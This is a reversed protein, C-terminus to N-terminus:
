DSVAEPSLRIVDRLEAVSLETLWDEGAGVISEALAKKREIMEDIREELTGVCIFKRVQVNKTQGIRFARDTAQDEVAPNWWRDVHIVHNAATLTLGTGAAKLSLLFVAPEAETQFRQVLEDRHRKSTGGHLWPVPRDLRSMLYPQLMAGFEAYQTFVLAKEGQELIEACIEELRELKGSRGPLRSGDKLLHAPHNCVQKLKAMTALVLGRRQTGESEAIRALMDEVTAQYLSAQETTLNCFVKIEQKEPLDSIIDKDTKLRRLIFPGTARKLATAAAEDGHAEIPVAYRARFAERPGLLGPNAFEMISWLETLHNEVPTGTLAVRSRAPIGRVARAQRTGSNKLAQAEDCVVRGWEVQALMEADRTATGYTTLVLDAQAAAQVLDDDRHRGTGHHVYVRLKPTFRAAERQWNGVLSMPLVALTPGPDAGARREHVLLSLLTVGKGLGMDDALLAGLGLDNMFALWALGREQYPRLRAEIGDPTAVPTLRRDPAGSLLDGLAGDADVTDLPLAEEGAQLAARMAEDATMTGSRRRRMFELAGALQREDLEVWQGRLRVLPAKLRALEALEEEAIPEGGIALDWRFDVLDGMGFGSAAAAGPKSESRTRTTLKRGLRAKGAWQPLLVGFGAASLLPAAERLFRFAGATDLEAEAPTAHNLAPGIDPFLRLARGLGTLLTEEANAVSRATGAWVAAASIFLSPDDTGQLAFEVRWQDDPEDAAVPPEAPEILRFCVRLPGAPLRAQAAWADLEAALEDPDDGLERVVEANPGTLAAVWREALPIRDPARGRRPPLLPHPVVSRVATDTLGDLAERLVVSARQGGEAARCAAPMAQALDRFRPVNYIVSRWRAILSGDERVLAPLVLGKEVHDLAEDAILALFRLDTGPVVDAQEEASRLLAMAARPDLVLGPVRWSHLSDAAHPEAGLEPSPSPRDATGPLLMTLEVRGAGHVLPEYSTGTFDNTAYPHVGPEAQEAPGAHEAWLCLAGAHWTAHAVLM